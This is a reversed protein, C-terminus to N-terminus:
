SFNQFFRIEKKSLKISNENIFFSSDGRGCFWNYVKVGSLIENHLSLIQSDENFYENIYWDATTLDALRYLSLFVITPSDRYPYLQRNKERLSRYIQRRDYETSRAGIGSLDYNTKQLSKVEFYLYRDDINIRGDINEFYIDIEAENKLLRRLVVMEFLSSYIQSVNQSFLQAKTSKWQNIQNQDEILIKSEILNFSEIFEPLVSDDIFYRFLEYEPFTIIRERITEKANSEWTNLQEEVKEFWQVELFLTNIESFQSIYDKVEYLEKRRLNIYRKLDDVSLEM